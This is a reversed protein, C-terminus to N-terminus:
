LGRFWEYGSGDASAPREIMMTISAHKTGDFLGGFTVLSAKVTCTVFKGKAWESSGSGSEGRSASEVDSAYELTVEVEEADDFADVVFNRAVYKSASRASDMDKCEIAARCGKYAAYELTERFTGVRIVTVIAALMIALCPIAALFGMVEGGGARWFSRARATLLRRKGGGDDNRM